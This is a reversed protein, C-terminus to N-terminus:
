QSRTSLTKSPYGTANKKERPRRTIVIAAEAGIILLVFIMDQFSLGSESTTSDPRSSTASPQPNASAYLANLSMISKDQYSWGVPLWSSNEVKPQSTISISSNSPDFFYQTFNDSYYGLWYITNKSASYNMTFNYWEGSVSTVTLTDPSQAIPEGGQPFNAQPENAFIVAKVHSGEPIGKLYISIQVITGSYPPTTYNCLTITKPAERSSIEKGIAAYGLKSTTILPDTLDLTATPETPTPTQTANSVPTSTLLLTPTPKSDTSAAHVNGTLPFVVLVFSMILM